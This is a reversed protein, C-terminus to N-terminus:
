HMACTTNTCSKPEYESVMKLGVVEMSESQRTQYLGRSCVEPMHPVLSSWLGQFKFVPGHYTGETVTSPRM